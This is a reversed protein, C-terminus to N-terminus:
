FQLSFLCRKEIFYGAKLIENYYHFASYYVRGLYFYQKLIYWCFGVLLLWTPVIGQERRFGPFTGRTDAFPSGVM